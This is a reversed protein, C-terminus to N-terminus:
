GEEDLREVVEKVRQSQGRPMVLVGDNTAVVIIDDLGVVAVKPGHSKVLCNRSEIVLTRPDVIDGNKELYDTLADWSGIDSWGLEIPRVAVHGAKEMIAYDVSMSPSRRLSEAEPFFHGAAHSRGRQVAEACASYIEPALDALTSLYLGARFLFIGANWSYEGSSLFSAATTADPKEIFADAQFASGILAAGRKIYGFGTEPATPAIGFTVLCDQEALPLVDAVADLLTKPNAIAHDSPMVLLIDDPDSYLAALAIAAATNRGVPELIIGAHAIGAGVVQREIIDLHQESAVILPTSYGPIGATRELTLQLMSRSSILPLFQKPLDRKSLPWLRTGSGGSLIVPLVHRILTM